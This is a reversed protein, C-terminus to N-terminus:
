CSVKAHKRPNLVPRQGRGGSTFPIANSPTIAPGKGGYGSMYQNEMAPQSDQLLWFPPPTPPDMPWAGERAWSVAVFLSMRAVHKAIEDSDSACQHATLACSM